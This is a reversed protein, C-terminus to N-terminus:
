RNRRKSSGVSSITGDWRGHGMGTETNVTGTVVARGSANEFRGTGGVFTAFSTFTLSPPSAPASTGEFTFHLRDGNAAVFTGQGDALTLDPRSCFSFAVSFRGLHTAIGEGSLSLRIEGTGSCGPAVEAGIIQFSYRSTKFPVMRSEDSRSTLLDIEPGTVTPGTRECGVLAASFLFFVVALTRM